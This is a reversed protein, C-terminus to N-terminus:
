GPRKKPAIFGANKMGQLSLTTLGELEKFLPEDIIKFNFCSKGQMRAKLERSCGDLLKPNGYVGTLHFGVYSKTKKVWAVPIVPTKMKGRWAQVTAPGTPAELSYHDKTDRGVSFEPLQKQLLSRLRSFVIDFQASM